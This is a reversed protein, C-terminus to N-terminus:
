RLVAANRLSEPLLMFLVSSVVETRQAAEELTELIRNLDEDDHGLKLALQGVHHRLRRSEAASLMAPNNAAATLEELHEM